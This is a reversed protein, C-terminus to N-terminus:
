SETGDDEGKRIVTAVSREFYGAEPVFATYLVNSRFSLLVGDQALAIMEGKPAHRDANQGYYQISRLAAEIQKQSLGHRDQIHNLGQKTLIFERGLDQDVHNFLVQDQYLTGQDGLWSLKRGAESTQEFYAVTVTRCRYHYPPGAVGDPLDRTKGEFSPEWRQATKLDDKTTAALVADRQSRLRRVSIIRGNMQRCIVSTREDLIAKVKVYEIGAAEYGAVRGLERVKRVTHDALANFYDDDADRLAAFETRLAAGTKLRSWGEQFAQRLIGNIQDGIVEDYHQGIWFLNQQGILELARLDVLALSFQPAVAQAGALYILKELEALREQPIEALALEDLPLSRIAAMAETMSGAAQLREIVTALLTRQAQHSLDAYLAQLKQLLAALATNEGAKALALSLYHRRLQNRSLSSYANLM